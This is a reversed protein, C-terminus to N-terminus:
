SEELGSEFRRMKTGDDSYMNVNLFTYEEGLGSAHRLKYYSPRNRKKCLALMKSVQEPTPTLEVGEEDVFVLATLRGVAKAILEESYKKNPM